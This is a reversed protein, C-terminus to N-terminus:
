RLAQLMGSISETNQMQNNMGAKIRSIEVDLNNIDNAVQQAREFENNRVLMDYSKLLNEIRAQLSFIQNDPGLNMPDSIEILEQDSLPPRPTKELIEKPDLSASGGKAMARAANILGGRESMNSSSLDMPKRGVVNDFFSKLGRLRM